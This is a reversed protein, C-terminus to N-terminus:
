QDIAALLRELAARAQADGLDAASRYWEVATRLDKTVGRGTEYMAGMNYQALPHGQAAAKGCWAFAMREDKAVGCGEAYIIALIAQADVQGQEAAKGCWEAAKMEDKAVGYGNAYMSGLNLQAKANGQEAAKRYWEAAKMENKVVGYGNAVMFGLNLQAKANGQEAAKGYWEVASREDKEVGLGIAYIRGLNLQAHAHGQNAAKRHWAVAKMDDKAVGSGDAHMSGLNFQAHAHGQDAAKRLWAVAKMDDKVVGIGNVYMVGLDCQAEARGQAAAKGYWEAAEREDKAVGRGNAYMLGLNLQGESNGQEAAKRFWEVAQMEDRAVGRADAYLTGLNLQAEVDGQAAAKRFWEVAKMADKAVGRGEAYRAGLTLQAKEHGQAAAKDFWDVAKREDKAVGRGTDYLIALYYQAQAHGQAAAKSYWEFAMNEDKAVGFGTAYMFGTNYQADANGKAAPRSFNEFAAIAAQAASRDTGSRSHQARARRLPEQPKAPAPPPLVAEPLALVELVKLIWPRKAHNGALITKVEPIGIYQLKIAFAIFAVLADVTGTTTPKASTLLTDLFRKKHVELQHGEQEMLWTVVEPKGRTVAYYIAAHGAKDRANLLEPNADALRQLKVLSAAGSAVQDFWKKQPTMGGPKVQERRTADSTAESETVSSAPTPASTKATDRGRKRTGPVPGKEHQNAPQRGDIIQVDPVSKEKLKPAEKPTCSVLEPATVALTSSTNGFWPRATKTAPRFDDRHANFAAPAASTSGTTTSNATTSNATASASVSANKTGEGKRSRGTSKGAIPENPVPVSRIATFGPRVPPTVADTTLASVAPKSRDQELDQALELALEPPVALVTERQLGFHQAALSLTQLSYLGDPSQCPGLLSRLPGQAEGHALMGREMLIQLAQLISGRAQRDWDATRVEAVLAALTCIFRAGGAPIAVQREAFYALAALLGALSEQSGFPQAGLAIAGDILRRAAALVARKLAQAAIANMAGGPAVGTRSVWKDAAKMFSLLNATTQGDLHAAEQTCAVIKKCADLSHM